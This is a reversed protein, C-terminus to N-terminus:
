WEVQEEGDVGHYFYFTGELGRLRELSRKAAGEDHCIGPPVAERLNRALPAADGPVVAQGDGTDVVVSQHGPVHGPTPIAEVGDVITAEGDVTTWDVRRWADDSFGLARDDPPDEAFALHEGQVVKDAGPFLDVNGTHDYHLHTCVVHTVDDTRYGLRALEAALEPQGVRDHLDAVPGPVAAMGTDILVVHDGTEVLVPRMAAKLTVGRGGRPLLRAQDVTFYGDLLQRVRM